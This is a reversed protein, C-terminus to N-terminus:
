AHMSKLSKTRPEIMHYQIGKKELLEQILATLKETFRVYTPRVKEYELIWNRQDLAL